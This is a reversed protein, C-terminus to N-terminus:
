CPLDQGGVQVASNALLGAATTLLTAPPCILIDVGPAPHADAIAQLEPLAARTGNMKWNGAALRRKM